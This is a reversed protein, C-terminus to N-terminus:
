PGEAFGHRFSLSCVLWGDEEMEGEQSQCDLMDKRFKKSPAQACKGLLQNQHNITKITSPKSPKSPKKKRTM